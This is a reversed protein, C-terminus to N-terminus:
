LSPGRSPVRNATKRSRSFKRSDMRRFSNKSMRQALARQEMIEVLNLPAVQVQLVTKLAM